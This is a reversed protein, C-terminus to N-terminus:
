SLKLFKVFVSPILTLVILAARVINDLYMTIDRLSMGETKEYFEERGLKSTEDILDKAKIQLRLPVYPAARCAQVPSKSTTGTEKM